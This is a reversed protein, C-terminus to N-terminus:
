PKRAMVAGFCMEDSTGEGWVVYRPEESLSNDWTCTMRLFDGFHVQLPDVFQYRGQWHFDWNPIDLLMMADDSGPNLEMRFSRGLEHMHGLLGYVTLPFPSPSPFDCYGISKEGSNGAYNELTQNCNRLRKDPIRASAEGYLEAARALANDRECQPGDVGTPCPIEVPASLPLTLLEAISSEDPELQLIVSSRDPQRTIALNYHMQIVIFEGPEVRYGTGSPFLAPFTGPTWTGIIAGARSLNTGGYCSWGPRGDAYDLNQMDEAADQKVLYVIGHHAMEGVEPIFEYGTIYKPANIDLSFAFCRYDDQANQDPMYAEALQLTLDPRVQVWDNADSPPPLYADPEGLPAGQEAWAVIFAIDEDSLSRNHKLPLNLRSPMWPPMIGNSVHFAIDDAAKIVEQPDTLPIDAAIQGEIHCTTCNAELLARIHRHYSLDDPAIVSATDIPEAEDDHEEDGHAMSIFSSLFILLVLLANLCLSPRM